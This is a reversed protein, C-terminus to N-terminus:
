DEKKAAAPDFTPHIEGGTGLSETPVRSDYVRTKGDGFIVRLFCPPDPCAAGKEPDDDSEPDADGDGPPPSAAERDSDEWPLPTSLRGRVRRRGLSRLARRNAKEIRAHRWLAWVFQPLGVASYFDNRPGLSRAVLKTCDEDEAHPQSRGFTASLVKRSLRTRADVPRSSEDEDRWPPFVVRCSLPYTVLFSENGRKFSVSLSSSSLDSLDVCDALGWRRALDRGTAEGAGAWWSRFSETVDFWADRDAVYAHQVAVAGAASIPVRPRLRCALRWVRTVFTLILLLFSAMATALADYRACAHVRTM